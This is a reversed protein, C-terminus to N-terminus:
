SGATLFFSKTNWTVNDLVSSLDLNLRLALKIIMGGHLEYTVGYPSTSLVSM